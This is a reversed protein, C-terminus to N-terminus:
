NIRIYPAAVQPEMEFLHNAVYTGIEVNHHVKWASLLASWTGADPKIPMNLVFELAEIIKGKRQLFDAMCSYHDLGPNIDYITTMM